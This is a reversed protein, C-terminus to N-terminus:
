DGHGVAHDPVGPKGLRWLLRAAGLLALAAAAGLLILANSEPGQGVSVLPKSMTAHVPLYFGVAKETCPKEDACAPNPTQMLFDTKVGSSSPRGTQGDKVAQWFDAVSARGPTENFPKVGVEQAAAPASALILFPILYRTQM